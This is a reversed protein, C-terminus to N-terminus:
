LCSYEPASLGLHRWRCLGQPKSKSSGVHGFSGLVKFDGAQAARYDAKRFSNDYSDYGLEIEGGWARDGKLIDEPDITRPFCRRGTCRCRFTCSNPGRIIEVAKMNFPDVFDRSGDTIQEQIRSGDVLMRVRNGGVGRISFSSLQGFPNTMSTLRNVSVGPEYRVMDQINACWVGNWIPVALLM